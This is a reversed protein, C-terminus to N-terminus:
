REGRPAPLSAAAIAQGVRRTSEDPLHLAAGALEPAEARLTERTKELLIAGGEGSTVRGLVLVHKMRYFESYLAIAYGLYVGLTEFVRRAREDGRALLGQVAELRAALGLAPAIEIGAKAALRFVADQSLYQVGTGRDGSWEADVPATDALDLPAFALESLWGVLHGRPDVYGAALSTGLALGLVPQDGLSMAGALATVDGDNAVAVPVDGWQRAVDLYLTKVRRDFLQPPVKRFLSAVRTRNDIHIGASSVGIADVRPLHAAARRISDTVGDFHYDPDNQNKPDWVIECSFVQHGDIVAAVKRDSGGADFGIRCGGLHRGVATGEEHEAPIDGAVVARIEFPREYVRSMFEADFQRAGGPAYSAALFRAVEPPGSVLVRAAGRQWLLFKLVREALELSAGSAGAIMATRHTSIAGGPRELAFVLPTGDAQKAARLSAYFPRFAPDLPPVVRPAVFKTSM